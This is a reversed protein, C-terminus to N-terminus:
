QVGGEIALTAAQLAARTLKKNGRIVGSTLGGFPQEDDGLVARAVQVILIPQADHRVIARTAGYLPRMVEISFDHGDVTTEITEKQTARMVPVSDFKEKKTLM